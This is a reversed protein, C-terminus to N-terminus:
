GRLVLVEQDADSQAKRESELAKRASELANRESVLASRESELAVLSEQLAAKTDVLSTQLGAETKAQYAKAAELGREVTTAREAARQEEARLTTM